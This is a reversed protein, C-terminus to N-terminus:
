MGPIVNGLINALEIELDKLYKNVKLLKDMEEVDTVHRLEERNQAMMLQVNRWKLQAVSHFAANSIDGDMDPVFIGHSEWNPSKQYRETLMILDIAESRIDGNPHHTFLKSELQQGAKLFQRCEDLLRQYAPTLFEMDELEELLYSYLPTGTNLLVSPHNVLLRVAELEVRKLREIHDLEPPAVVEPEHYNPEGYYAEPPLDDSFPFDGPPPPPLNLQQQQQRAKAKRALGMEKNVEALLVEESIGFIDSCEKIFVARKIADPIKAITQVIDRIAEARTAPNNKAEAAILRAKFSIFDQANQQLYNRFEDEGVKRVFSDPDDGEPFLVINVNLGHELIMDMGRLSAKIGAPDGDYLVTINQTYRGILKIQGETLSTGSSAVVNKIGAQYLSIVDLYGETLYCMDLQRMFQKAFYLGYLIDSKHYIPSEPSNLYKPSKPDNKKLTRAGFGIVKGSVSHIPFMVRGRFRDYKKEEKVITLGTAELFKLEFGRALAASTLADWSDLSYGLEFTHITQKSLGRENLYSQGINGEDTSTLQEKFFEKAWNSLIFLSDRENHRQAEESDPEPTTDPIPINYKKALHRLAEPYSEGEIEMIFKVSDGAKGCGFCKFIGKAPAVSFSPSKENHFPCPAWLNQGKKKLSVYDGVVDAIDAQQIIQEVVDQPIRSM